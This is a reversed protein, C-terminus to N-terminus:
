GKEPIGFIRDYIEVNIGAPNEDMFHFAQEEDMIQVKTGNEQTESVLFYAGKETRYLKRTAINVFDSKDSVCLLDSEEPIYQKKGIYYRKKQNRM